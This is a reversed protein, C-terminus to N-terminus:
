GSHKQMHNTEGTPNSAFAMLCESCKPAIHTFPNDPIDCEPYIHSYVPSTWDWDSPAPCSLPVPPSSLASGMREQCSLFVSWSISLTLTVKVLYVWLNFTKMTKIHQFKKLNRSLSLSCKELRGHQYDASVKHQFSICILQLKSFRWKGFWVGLRDLHWSINM